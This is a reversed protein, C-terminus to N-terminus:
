VLGPCPSPVAVLREAFVFAQFTLDAAARVTWWQSNLAAVREPLKQAAWASSPLPNSDPLEPCDSRASNSNCHVSSNGLVAAVVPVVSVFLTEVVAAVSPVASVVVPAAAVPVEADSVSVVIVVAAVFVAILVYEAVAVVVVVYAVSEVAVLSPAAAVFTQAVEDSGAHIPFNNQHGATVCKKLQDADGRIILVTGLSLQDEMLM